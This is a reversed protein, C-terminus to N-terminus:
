TTQRITTEAQKSLLELPWSDASTPYRAHPKSVTIAPNPAADSKQFAQLNPNMPIVYLPGLFPQQQSSPNSTPMQLLHGEMYNSPMNAHWCEPPSVNLDPKSQSLKEELENQLKRVNIELATTEEKLENKEVIMYNSESLLTANEKRLNQVHSLMDKLLRMTENLISAKGNNEQSLELVGALKNFLENLQERKLREREAKMVKKPVKGRKRKNPHSDDVADVPADAIEADSEENLGTVPDDLDSGM